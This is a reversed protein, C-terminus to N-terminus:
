GLCDYFITAILFKIIKRIFLCIYAFDCIVFALGSNAGPHGSEWGLASAVRLWGKEETSRLRLLKISDKADLFGQILFEPENEFFSHLM